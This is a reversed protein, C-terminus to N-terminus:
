RTERREKERRQHERIIEEFIEITSVSTIGFLTLEGREAMPKFREAYALLRDDPIRKPEKTLVPRPNRDDWVGLDLGLLIYFQRRFEDVLAASPIQLMVPTKEDEIFLLPDIDSLSDVRVIHAHEPTEQSGLWPLVTTAGLVLLVRIDEQGLVRHFTAKMVKPSMCYHPYTENWVQAVLKWPIRKRLMRVNLVLNILRTYKDLTGQRRYPFRKDTTRETPPKSQTRGSLDTQAFLAPYLRMTAVYEGLSKKFEKVDEVGVAEVKIQTIQESHIRMLYDKADPQKWPYGNTPKIREFMHNVFEQIEIQTDM